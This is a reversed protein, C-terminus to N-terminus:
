DFYVDLDVFIDLNWIGRIKATASQVEVNYLWFITADFLRIGGDM